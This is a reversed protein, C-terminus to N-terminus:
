ARGAESSLLAPDFGLRAIAQDWKEDLRENFVLSPDAPVHLWANEQIEEDLQGPGWGAYGLALLRAQPGDGRAIDRLIDITATLGIGNEMDVTADQAYDTSHLVFGRGSEVPGGFHVRIEDQARSAGLDLQELLEDFTMSEVLRNIVLGMAGEANHLCMYIVSRQFRPDAMGPMAVLLQGTLYGSHRRGSSMM